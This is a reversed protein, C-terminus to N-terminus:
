GKSILVQISPFVQAIPPPNKQSPCSRLLWMFCGPLQVADHYCSVKAVVYLTPCGPLEVADHYVSVKVVVYLM